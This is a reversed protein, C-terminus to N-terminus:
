AASKEVREGPQHRQLTVVNAGGSPVTHGAPRPLRKVRRTAKTSAVLARDPHKWTLLPRDNATIGPDLKGRCPDIGWWTVAYLTPMCRDRGGRRTLMVWGRGLLERVAKALQDKSTWGRKRMISWAATLDGNNYGNYQAAIDILAKLARPSLAAYQPSELYAYPLKLFPPGSRKRNRRSM